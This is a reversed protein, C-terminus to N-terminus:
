VVRMIVYSDCKTLRFIHRSPYSDPKKLREKTILEAAISRTMASQSDWVGYTPAGLRHKPHHLPQMIMGEGVPKRRLGTACRKDMVLEHIIVDDGIKLPQINGM